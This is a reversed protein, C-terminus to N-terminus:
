APQPPGCGGFSSMARDCRIASRDRTQVAVMVLQAISLLEPRKSDNVHETALRQGNLNAMTQPALVDDLNQVAQDTL